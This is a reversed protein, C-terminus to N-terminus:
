EDADADSIGPIYLLKVDFVVPSSPPVRPRGAAAPLGKPFALNGPIYLRRVGGTQMTLLAEDLGAVVQGAGVRIQYPYGKELSSDFVRGEPTMAVYDVTVQYGKPPSAGVGKVIDVYQLGSATTVRERSGLDAVCAADCLAAPAEDDALAPAARSLFLTAALGAAQQLAARRSTGESQQAACVVRARRQPRAATTAPVFAQQVVTGAVM